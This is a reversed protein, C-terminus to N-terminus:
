KGSNMDVLVNIAEEIYIDKALNEHWNTTRELLFADKKILNLKNSTAFFNLNNRYKLLDEFLIMNSNEKAIETRFSDINLNQIKVIAKKSNILAKNEILKFKSNEIIRKKSTNIIKLFNSNDAFPKFNLKKIKDNTFSNSLFQEGYKEYKNESPMEIDSEVGKNQTSEGSVRYFKQITTKLAGFDYDSTKNIPLFQNLDINNQLSGKGFTSKCGMIIGRNYDQITAAFIESASASDKNTLIVLKGDWKLSNPNSKLVDISQSNSKLQVIQNENLFLGAIEVACEVSGGGNDRLDLIIGQVGDKKLSEIENEVDKTADRNSSDNFDKYFKPLNIIGFKKSNKEVICSQAFTNGIEIIDKKIPIVKISGDPKKVTLKILINKKVKAVLKNYDIIQFGVVDIPENNGEQFKLIIDGVELKKDRYAPGSKEIKHVQLFNDIYATQTGLGIYQGSMLYSDELKEFPKLYKSHPDFQILIANLYKSFFDERELNEIDSDTGSLYKLYETRYNLELDDISTAKFKPDQKQKITEINSKQVISDLLAKKIRLRWINKIGDANKAFNPQEEKYNENTSFEFINKGLNTYIIKAEKMRMKIRDYTSYFFTLDNNNIQDDLLLESKKFELIDSQLLFKKDSDLLNIYTKFVAKSFNDDIKKLNYHSKKLTIVILELLKKEKNPDFPKKHNNGFVFITSFLFLIFFCINKKM